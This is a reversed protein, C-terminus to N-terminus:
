GQTEGIWWGKMCHNKEPIAIPFPRGDRATERM